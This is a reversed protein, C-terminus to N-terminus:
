LTVGIPTTTEAHASTVTVNPLSDLGLGTIFMNVVTIFFVLVVSFCHLIEMIVDPDADDNSYEDTDTTGDLSTGYPSNVGMRGRSFQRILRPVKGPTRAESKPRRRACKFNERAWLFVIIFAFLVQSILSTIILCLLPYYFHSQPSSTLLVRLQSINAMMLAVDMMAHAATKRSSFANQPAAALADSKYTLQNEPVSDTEDLGHGDELAETASMVVVSSRSSTHRSKLESTLGKRERADSPVVDLEDSRTMKQYDSVQM